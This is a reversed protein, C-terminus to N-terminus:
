QKPLKVIVITGVGPKSKIDIEGQHVKVIEQAIALGLGHGGQRKSRAEDVRYFRDFINALDKKAIGIGSDKVRIEINEGKDVTSLTIKGDDPTYKISNDLFIRLMQKLLNRDGKLNISPNKVVKIKLEPARLRSEQAVESMLREWAIEQKEIHQREEGKAILLLKEILESMNETEDKIATIAEELVEKDEAGWRDLLNIYGQIVSIPTRLEHSADGIFRRQRKVAEELRSLMQNFTKALRSLEDDVDRVKLRDQLNGISIKNVTEIISEIPALIQRTMFLGSLISFVAGLMTTILIIFGLIDETRELSTIDRVMELQILHQGQYQVLKKLYLFEKGKTSFETFQNPKVGQPLEINELEKSVDILDGDADTVKAALNTSFIRFDEVLDLKTIDTQNEKLEQTLEKSIQQGIHRFEQHVDKLLLYEVGNQIILNLLMLVMLFIIAYILTLRWSIKKFRHLFTFM